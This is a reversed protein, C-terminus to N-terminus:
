ASARGMSRLCNLWRGIRKAIARMFVIAGDYILSEVETGNIFLRELQVGNFVVPLLARAYYTVSVSGNGNAGAGGGLSTTSTYTNGLVTLSASKVYGSGGGGGYAYVSTEGTSSNTSANAQGGGGGYLGDGGRGGACGFWSSSDSGANGGTGYSGATPYTGDARISGAAGGGAQTGGGGGLPADSGSSGGGNGGSLIEFTDVSMPGLAGGGGAGAVLYLNERIVGSLTSAYAAAVFAASCPGGAGIYVMQGKELLLFGDTYGGTGGGGDGATGGSGKLEFRYVGKKPATFSSVTYAGESSTDPTYTIKAGIASGASLSGNWGM